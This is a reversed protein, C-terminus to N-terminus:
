SLDMNGIPLEMMSQSIHFLLNVAMDVPREGATMPHAAEDKSLHMLPFPDIRKRGGESDGALAFTVIFTRAVVAKEWSPFEITGKGNPGGNRRYASGEKRM